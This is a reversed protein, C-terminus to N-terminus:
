GFGAASRYDCGVCIYFVFIRPLMYMFFMSNFFAICYIRDAISDDIVKVGTSRIEEAVKEGAEVSRSCLVVHAGALALAKVTEAGLGSNGGTVVANIGTLDYGQVAEVATTRRGVATM